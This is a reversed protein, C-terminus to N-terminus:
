ESLEMAGAGDQEDDIDDISRHFSPVISRHVGIVV